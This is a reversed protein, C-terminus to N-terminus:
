TADICAVCAILMAIAFSGTSAIGLITACAGIIMIGELGLHWVGSRQALVGAMTVYVLPTGSRLIAIIIDNM